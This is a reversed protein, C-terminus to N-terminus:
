RLALRRERRYPVWGRCVFLGWYVGGLALGFVTTSLPGLGVRSLYGEVLGAIILWPATSAAITFAPGAEAALAARRTMNGPRLMARGMALGTGGAVVICTLELIGHAMVASLLLDGNGAGIALGMVGGLLVGNYALLLATGLGFTIGLAFVLLSVRINNVLVFTSFGALGVAGLGQDTTDSEVVWLFEPPLLQTMTEPDAIAWLAALIGPALLLLAALGLPRSREALLRWYRDTFLTVLNARRGSREYILGRGRGVMRELRPVVPDTPFRRRAVALDAAASRYRVALERIQDPDLREPRRGAAKLLEDFRQWGDERETLYTTLKM